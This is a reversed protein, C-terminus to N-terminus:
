RCPQACRMRAYLYLMLMESCWACPVASGGKGCRWCIYWARSLSYHNLLVRSKTRTRFAPKHLANIPTYQTRKIARCCAVSTRSPEGAASEHIKHMLPARRNACTKHTICEARASAITSLISFSSSKESCGIAVVFGHAGPCKQIDLKWSLTAFKKM